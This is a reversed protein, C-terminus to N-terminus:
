KGKGNEKSSPFEGRHTVGERVDLRWLVLCMTEWQYSYLATWKPTYFGCVVLKPIAGAITQSVQMFVM